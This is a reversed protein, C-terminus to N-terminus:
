ILTLFYGTLDEGYISISYSYILYDQNIKRRLESYNDILLQVSAIQKIIDNLQLHLNNKNLMIEKENKNREKIKKLYNTRLEMRGEKFSRMKNLCKDCELEKDRTENCLTNYKLRFLSLNYVSQNCLYILM